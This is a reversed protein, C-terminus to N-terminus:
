RVLRLLGDIVEGFPVALLVLGIGPIAIAALLPLLHGLAFPFPLTARVATVAIQLDELGGIEGDPVRRMGEGTQAMRKGWEELADRRARVIHAAFIAVPPLVFLLLAVVLLGIGLPLFAELVHGSHLMFSAAPGALLVSWALLLPSAAAVTKGIFGLGAARDPHLPFLTLRLRSVGWLFRYWLGLRWLWVLSLYFAVGHAAYASWAGALTLRSGGGADPRAFWTDAVESQVLTTLRVSLLIAGLLCAVEPWLRRGARTVRRALEEVEARCEPGVIGRERFKAGAHRWAGALVPKAIMLLPVGILSRTYGAIDAFFPVKVASGPLARDELLALAATPVWLLLATAVARRAEDVATAAEVGFRRMLKFYPGGRVLDPADLPEAPIADVTM